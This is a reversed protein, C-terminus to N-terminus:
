RSTLSRSCRQEEALQEEALLAISFTLPRGEDRKLSASFATELPDRVDRIDPVPRPERDRDHHSQDETWGEIIARLLETEFM